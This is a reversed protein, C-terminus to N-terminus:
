SISKLCKKRSLQIVCKWFPIRNMITFDNFKAQLDFECLVGFKEEMLAKQLHEITEQFSKSSEVTYDFM